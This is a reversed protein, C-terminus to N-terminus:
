YKLGLRIKESTRQLKNRIRMLEYKNQKNDDGRSDEIKENVVQLEDELERLIKAREKGDLYKDTCIFGIFTIGTILAVPSIVTGVASGIMLGIGRKVWRWVKPWAGGKLIINRRENADAERIKEYQQQIFKEMPDITKKIATKINDTRDKTATKSFAQNAKTEAKRAIKGATGEIIVTGVDYEDVSYNEQIIPTMRALQLMAETISDDDEANFIDFVTSGVKRSAVSFPTLSGIGYPDPRFGVGSASPTVIPAGGRTAEEKVEEYASDLLEAFSKDLISLASELEPNGKCRNGLFELVTGTIRLLPIDNYNEHTFEYKATNSYCKFFKAISAKDCADTVICISGHLLGEGTLMPQSIINELIMFEKTGDDNADNFAEFLSKSDMHYSYDEPSLNGFINLASEIMPDDNYSAIRSEITGIIHVGNSVSDDDGDAGNASEMAPIAETVDKYICFAEYLEAEKSLQHIDSRKGDYNNDIIDGTINGYGRYYKDTDRNYIVDGLRNRQDMLLKRLLTAPVITVAYLILAIILVFATTLTVGGVILIGDIALLVDNFGNAGVALFKLVADGFKELHEDGSNSFVEAEAKIQNKSKIYKSTSSVSELITQFDSNEMLSFTLKKRYESELAIYEDMPYNSFRIKRELNSIAM